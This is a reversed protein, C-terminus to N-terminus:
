GTGRGILGSRLVRGVTGSLTGGTYVQATVTNSAATHSASDTYVLQYQYVHGATASGDTLTRTTAGAVGGGNALNSLSGGDVGRKWQYTYAPTGGTADTATLKVFPSGGGPGSSDFSATGAAFAPGSAPLWAQTRRRPTADRGPVRTVRTPM